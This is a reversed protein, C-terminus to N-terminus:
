LTMCLVLLVVLIFMVAVGLVVNDFFEGMTEGREFNGSLSISAVGRKIQHRSIKWRIPAM